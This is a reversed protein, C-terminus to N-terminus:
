INKLRFFSGDFIQRDSVLARPGIDIMAGPNSVNDINGISPDYVVVGNVVSLPARWSDNYSSSLVNTEKQLGSLQFSDVWFLDGGKQGTFLVSLDWNKYSFNNTIAFTYDPNPDGIKCFM